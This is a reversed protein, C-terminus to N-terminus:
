ESASQLAPSTQLTLALPLKQAGRSVAAMGASVVPLLVANARLVVGGIEQLVSEFQGEPHVQLAPTHATGHLSEFAQAEPCLQM